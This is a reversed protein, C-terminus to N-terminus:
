ILKNEVLSTLKEIVRKLNDIETHIDVNVVEPTISVVPLVTKIVKCLLKHKRLGSKSVYGKDCKICSFPYIPAEVNNVIDLHKKTMQHQKLHGNTTAPYKCIDCYFRCKKYNVQVMENEQTSENKIDEVVEDEEVVKDEDDLMVRGYDENEVVFGSINEEDFIAGDM